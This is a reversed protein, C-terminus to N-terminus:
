NTLTLTDDNSLYGFALEQEAAPAFSGRVAEWEAKSLKHNMLFDCGKEKLYLHIVERYRLFMWIPIGYAMICQQRCRDAMRLAAARNMGRTVRYNLITSFEQDDAIMDVIGLEKANRRIKSHKGLTFVSRGYANIIDTNDCILDITQQAEEETESPFGFFIYAFNWIGADHAARLIDLRKHIDVGKNILKLIRENASEIGWMVMTLGGERLTHFVPATFEKDTRGNGFFNVKLGADIMKRCLETMYAPTMSEDILEFNTIGYKEALLKWEAFVKDVPCVDHKIGYDTDCFTCKQWYCGKSTRASLVIEPCFYLSLDLGELSPDAREALPLPDVPANMKVMGEENLYLLNPVEELPRGAEVARYLALMPREGEGWIVSDAFHQLFRPKTLLAERLRMFYNGGLSVHLNPLKMDRLLRALTLGGYLQSHSNISIGVIVKDGCTRIERALLAAKMELFPLFVNEDRNLSFEILGEVTMPHEPASFDNFRLRSPYFPLSVLDLAKDVTIYAKLLRAPDYFKERDNFVAVADPLDRKVDRWIRRKPGLFKDIELLRACIAGFEPSKEKRMLGMQVRMKLYDRTNRVRGLSYTLYGTTLIERFFEVNYDCLQCDAGQGRLYGALTYLAFHPNMPNWQPPYILKYQM